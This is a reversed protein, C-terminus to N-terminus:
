SSRCHPQSPFFLKFTQCPWWPSQHKPTSVVQRALLDPCHVRHHHGLAGAGAHLGGSLICPGEVGDGARRRGGRGPFASSSAAADVAPRFDASRASRGHRRRLVEPSAEKQASRGVYIAKIPQTTGGSDRRIAAHARDPANTRNARATFCPHISIFPFIGANLKLVLLRAIVM